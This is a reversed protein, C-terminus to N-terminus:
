RAVNKITAGAAIVKQGPKLLHAGLAVVRDGVKLGSAIEATEEGLRGVKVPQLTVTSAQPDYIWVAYGTGEDRLAGVPVAVSGERVTQAQFRLTVTAGLPATEGGGSLVYRARYTRTTTDAVASLERLKAPYCSGPDAYLTATVGLTAISRVGEPLNIEAERAGDRALKVVTQGASVVQGPEAPVDMVVGDADAQLEAYQAQNAVQRAQAEAADLQANAADATAKNRDYAQASDWGSAALKRSRQEDAATRVQQARAAEVAARASNLALEFDVPDLRMLPQGARVRQGPDVLRELIKGAVRFGLNSETRARVVGTFRAADAQLAAVTTIRVTPPVPASPPGSSPLSLWFITAFLGATGIAAVALGAVAWLKVLPRRDARLGHEGARSWNNSDGM